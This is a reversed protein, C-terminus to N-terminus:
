TVGNRTENEGNEMVQRKNGEMVRPTMKRKKDMKMM